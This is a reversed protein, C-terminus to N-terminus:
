ITGIISSVTINIGSYYVIVLFVFSGWIHVSYNFSRDILNLIHMKLYQLYESRRQAYINDVFCSEWAYM